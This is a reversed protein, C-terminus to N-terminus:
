MDHEKHKKIGKRFLDASILTATKDGTNQWWHAVKGIAPVVEGAKHMIPVSCTSRYETLEGEIVYINDPRDDHEHWRVVGGPQIVLRRLRLQRGALKPDQKGLDLAALVTDTVGKNEAPGPKTVNVGTKGPPCDGARAPPVAAAMALAATITLTAIACNHTGRLYM